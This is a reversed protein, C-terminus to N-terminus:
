LIYEEGFTQAAKVKMVKVKMVKSVKMVRVHGEDLTKVIEWFM